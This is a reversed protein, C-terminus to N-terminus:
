LTSIYSREMHVLLDGEAVSDGNKVYLKGVTGDHPAQVQNEMKMAEMVLLDQGAKVKEGEKVKVELILGPLPATVDGASSTDAAKSPAPASVTTDAPQRVQPEVVPHATPAKRGLEKLKM